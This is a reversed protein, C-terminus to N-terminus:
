CPRRSRRDRAKSDKRGRRSRDRHISGCSISISIRIGAGIAQLTAIVFGAKDEAYTVARIVAAIDSVAATAMDAWSWTRVLDDFARASVEDKTKSSIISKILVELPGRSRNFDVDGFV